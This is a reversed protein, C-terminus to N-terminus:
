RVSPGGKLRDFWPILTYATKQLNMILYMFKQKNINGLVHCFEERRDVFYIQGFLINM